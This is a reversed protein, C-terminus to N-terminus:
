EVHATCKAKLNQANENVLLDDYEALNLNFTILWASFFFIFLFLKAAAQEKSM